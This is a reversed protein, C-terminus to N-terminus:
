REYAKLVSRPRWPLEANAVWARLERPLRDYDLLPNENRRKRKLSTRGLNNNIKM